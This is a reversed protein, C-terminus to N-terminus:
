VFSRSTEKAHTAKFFCCCCIASGAAAPLVLASSAQESLINDFKINTHGTLAQHLSVQPSRTPPHTRSLALSHSLGQGPEKRTKSWLVSGLGGVCFRGVFCLAFFTRLRHRRTDERATWPVPSVPDQLVGARQASSSKPDPGGATLPAVPVDSASEVGPPPADPRAPTKQSSGDGVYRKIFVTEERDHKQKKTNKSRELFPPHTPLSPLTLDAM